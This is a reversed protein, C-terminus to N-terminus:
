SVYSSAFVVGSRLSSSRRMGLFAPHPSASSGHWQEDAPAAAPAKFWAHFSDRDHLPFILTEPASWEPHASQAAALIDSLPRASGPPSLLQDPNLWEDIAKYFVLFSGTLSTLVFLAGGFLGVYLHLRLWQKKLPRPTPTLMGAPLDPRATATRQAAPRPRAPKLEQVIM